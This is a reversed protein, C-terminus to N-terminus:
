YFPVESYKKDHSKKNISPSNMRQKLNVDQEVRMNEIKHKTKIGSSILREEISAMHLKDAEDQSDRQSRRPSYYSNDLDQEDKSKRM